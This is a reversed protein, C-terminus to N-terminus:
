QLALRTRRLHVAHILDLRQGVILQVTDAVEQDSDRALERRHHHHLQHALDHDVNGVQVLAGDRRQQDTFCRCFTLSAEGDINCSM